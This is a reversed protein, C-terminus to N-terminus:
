PQYITLTNVVLASFCLFFWLYKTYLIFPSTVYADRQANPCVSVPLSTLMCALEQHNARVQTQSTLVVATKIIFYRTKCVVNNQFGKEGGYRIRVLRPPINYQCLPLKCIAGYHSGDMPTLLCGLHNGNCPMQLFSMTHNVKGDLVKVAIQM